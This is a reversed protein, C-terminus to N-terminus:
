AAQVHLTPAVRRLRRRGWDWWLYAPLARGCRGVQGRIESAKTRPRVESVGRGGSTAACSGAFRANGHLLYNSSGGREDQRPSEGEHQGPGLRGRRCGASRLLTQVGQDLAHFIRGVLEEFDLPALFQAVLLALRQVGFAGTKFEHGLEFGTLILPAETGAISAACCATLFDLVNRNQKRATHAITMVREAFLNGRDSQSGFCRKRWLVFARLEREAHNNTPDVGARTVFTWLADKHALIDACSGSVHKINAAVARQLCEEVNSQLTEMRSRFQQRSMGGAQYSHRYNFLLAAYDLLEEGFSKAPGDRESFSIFKRLLHAWCV